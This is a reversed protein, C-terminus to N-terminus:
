SFVEVMDVRKMQCNLLHNSYSCVWDDRLSFVSVSFEQVGWGFGLSWVGSIKEAKGLLLTHRGKGVMWGGLDLKPKKERAKQRYGTCEDATHM